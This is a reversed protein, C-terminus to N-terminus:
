SLCNQLIFFLLVGIYGPTCVMPYVTTRYDHLLLWLGCLLCPLFLPLCAPLPYPLFMPQYDLSMKGGLPMLNSLMMIDTM